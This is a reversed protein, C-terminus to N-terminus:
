VRTTELEAISRAALEGEKPAPTPSQAAPSARTLAEGTIGIKTLAVPAMADTNNAITANCIKPPVASVGRDLGNGKM